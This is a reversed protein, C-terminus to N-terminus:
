LNVPDESILLNQNEFDEIDPIYDLDIPDCNPITKIPEDTLNFNTIEQIFQANEVEVSQFHDLLDNYSPCEQLMSLTEWPIAPM